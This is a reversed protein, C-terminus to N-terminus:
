RPLASRQLIFEVNQETSRANDPANSKPTSYELLLNDDTSIWHQLPLPLGRLLRNTAAPDLLQMQRIAAPDNGLAKLIPQLTGTARLTQLAEINPAAREDNTAVIVGQGGILYLWVYRFEARVSALVRVVDEQSLHHLQLWQQLVGDPRLRKRALEYFERNYLSAAGAFWISSIEIGIVDYSQEQLLLYNRGDTIYTSVGPERTVGANIAGFYRNALQVIDKSLDVIDVQQFGAEHLTRASVGTGYGIVLARDRHATHLLPALSLGFQAQMEGEHADNGQFKGNTLLTHLPPEGPRDLRVVSTLGGDISEAHGIVKGLNHTAFYVNSGSGLRDYDFSAPQVVLLALAAAAPAWTTWRKAQPAMALALVGLVMSAVALVHVSTLAGLFPLLVFGGTLVGVINGFTNLAAGSGLAAIARQPEARGVCEMALPYIAGIFVAPPFMALWCVIARVVERSAFGRTLPYSEFSAFYAPMSDWMFVGGLIVIALGFELWGLLRMLSARSGKLVRRAAEAGAGLGLLFTFLMLSFAYTSNGAVVALLHIYLTELALTIAGGVGLIALAVHGASALRRREVSTTSDAPVADLSAEHAPAVADAAGRKHLRIALYAVLLNLVVATMTTGRMGLVQIVLYGVLLAGLAAGVTNAAYLVAVSRGLAYARQEFYRALIPLTMGMLVTPLMLGAMGLGVRLATLTPADPPIGSALHVYAAQIGRFVLPTAACYVGIALECSAYLFLPHRRGMALRGGLWAGFAMGGMYTALVTYISTATGGFTLALSKSFVVEYMLGAFGSVVFMAPVMRLGSAAVRSAAAQPAVQATSVPVSAEQEFARILPRYLVASAYVTAAIALWSLGPVAEFLPVGFRLAIIWALWIALGGVAANKRARHIWPLTGSVVAVTVLVVPLAAVLDILYHEGVAMTAIFTLGLLVAFFGSLWRNGVQRATLWLLVAWAFHMSPMGNRPVPPLLTAELPILDARPLALPFGNNLYRPGAVPLFHYGIVGIAMSVILGALLNVAPRGPRAIQAGIVVAFGLPLVNYSALLVDEVWPIPILWRALAASPQFGLTSEFHYVLADYTLPHLSTSIDLFPIPTFVLLLLGASAFLLPGLKAGYAPPVSGRYRDFAIKALAPFGLACGLTGWLLLYASMEPYRPLLVLVYVVVGIVLGPLTVWALRRWGPEAFAYMLVFYWAFYGVAGIVSGANDGMPGTITTGVTFRAIGVTSALVGVLLVGLAIWLLRPDDRVAFMPRFTPTSPDVAEPMVAPDLLSADAIM